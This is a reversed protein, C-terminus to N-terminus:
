ENDDPILVATFTAASSPLVFSQGFEVYGDKLIQLWVSNGGTGSYDYTVGPCSEVGALETGYSNGTSDLDYIRVEAGALSVNAAITLAASAVQVTIAGGTNNATTYSTGAPLAVNIAHATTNRLDVTGSFTSGGFSYDGPAAPTMSVTLSSASFTYSAAASINLTGGNFTPVTSLQSWAGDTYTYNSGSAFETSLTHAGM